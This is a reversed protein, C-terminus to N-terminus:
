LGSICGGKLGMSFDYKTNEVHNGDVYLLQNYKGKLHFDINLHM